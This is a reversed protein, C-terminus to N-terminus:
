AVSSSLEYGIYINKGIWIGQLYRLNDCAQAQLAKLLRKDGASVHTALSRYRYSACCRYKQLNMTSTLESLLWMLALFCRCPETLLCVQNRPLNIQHRVGVRVFYKM